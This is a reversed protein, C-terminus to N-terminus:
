AHIQGVREQDGGAHRPRGRQVRAHQSVVVAGLAHPIEALLGHEPAGGAASDPHVACQERLSVQSRMPRQQGQVDWRVGGIEPPARQRAFEHLQNRLVAPRHIRHALEQLAVQLDNCRQHRAALGQGCQCRRLRKQRTGAKVEHRLVDNAIRLPHVM